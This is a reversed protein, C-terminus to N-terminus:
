AHVLCIFKYVWTKKMPLVTQSVAHDGTESVTKKLKNLIKIHNGFYKTYNAM